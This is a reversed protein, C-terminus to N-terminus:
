CMLRLQSCKCMMFSSSCSALVTSLYSHIIINMCKSFLGLPYVIRFQEINKTTNPELNDTSIWSCKHDMQHRDPEQATCMALCRSSKSFGAKM